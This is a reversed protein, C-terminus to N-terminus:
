GVGEVGERGTRRKRACEYMTCCMHGEGRHRESLGSDLTWVGFELSCVASQLSCLLETNSLLDM